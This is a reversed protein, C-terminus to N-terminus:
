NGRPSASGLLSTRLTGSVAELRLGCSDRFPVRGCLLSAKKASSKTIVGTFGGLLVNDWDRIVVEQGSGISKQKLLLFARKINELVAFQIANYPVDYVLASGYGGYFAMIGGELFIRRFSQFFNDYIGVQVRKKVMEIPVRVVSGVLGAGAGAIVQRLFPSLNENMGLERKLAEYTPMYCLSYPLVGVLAGFIGRYLGAIGERKVFKLIANRSSFRASQPGRSRLFQLRTKVTDFPFLLLKSIAGAAGAALQYEAVSLRPTSVAKGTERGAERREVDEVAGMRFLAAGIEEADRELTWGACARGLADM